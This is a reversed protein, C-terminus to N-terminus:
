KNYFNCLRMLLKIYKWWSEVLWWLHLRYMLFIIQARSKRWVNKNEINSFDDKQVVFMKKTIYCPYREQVCNAYWEDFSRYMNDLYYEWIESTYEAPHKQLYLDYFKANYIVAHAEFLKKVLFVKNLWKQSILSWGKWIQGGFYVIYWDIGKLDNMALNCEELFDNTLFKIDDEFVAVCDWHNKKAHEIIERHSLWAGFRRNEPRPKANWRHVKLKQLLFQHECDRWRDSRSILNICFFNIKQM